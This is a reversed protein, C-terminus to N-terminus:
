HDCLTARNPKNWTSGASVAAHLVNRYILTTEQSVNEHHLWRLFSSISAYLLLQLLRMQLQSAHQYTLTRTINISFETLRVSSSGGALRHRVRRLHHLRDLHCRRGTVIPVDMATHAPSNGRLRVTVRRHRSCRDTSCVTSTNRTTTSSCTSAHTQTISPRGFSCLFLCLYMLSRIILTQFLRGGLITLKSDNDDKLFEKPLTLRPIYVL